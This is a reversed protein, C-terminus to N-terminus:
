MTTQIWYEKGLTRSIVFDLRQFCKSTNWTIIDQYNNQFMKGSRLVTFLTKKNKLGVAGRGRGRQLGWGRGLVIKLTMSVESSFFCSSSSFTYQFQKLWLIEVQYSVGYAPVLIMTLEFKNKSVFYWNCWVYLTQKKRFVLTASKGRKQTTKTTCM